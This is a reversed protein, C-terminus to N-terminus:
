QECGNKQCDKNRFSHMRPTRVSETHPFLRIELSVFLHQILVDLRVMGRSFSQTVVAIVHNPHDVTHSSTRWFKMSVGDIDPNDFTPFSSQDQTSLEHIRFWHAVSWLTFFHGACPYCSSLTMLYRSSIHNM